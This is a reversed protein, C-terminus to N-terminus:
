RRVRRRLAAILTTVEPSRFAWAAVLYVAMSVGVAGLIVAARPWGRGLGPLVTLRCLGWAVAGMVLAALLARLASTGVRGLGLPGLRRRLMTVLLTFNVITSLSVALALGTHRLPWMLSLGAALYVVLAVAAARVPARSDKLAYFVPVVQRIGAGAWLSVTFGVLTEYTARTMAADFRGRQFLLAIIPEGIVILAVSAPIVVFMTLRLSDTFLAKLKPLEQNAVHLSLTPLSASAIAVAFIGMPMEILRQSYYLYTVTGEDLFSALLRSLIVNVQYLALGFLAPGMLALTRSVDPHRPEVRVRPAYGQRVLFPIQLLLQAVGGVLVGIALGWIPHIGLGHLPRWLGVTSLIMCLNLLVPSAAPSAFHGTVNLVGMALAMLAVCLLYPFMVRTLDVALAYKDPDATFGWAFARVLLPAALMGALCVGLTVLFLTTWAADLFRRSAEHGQHQRVDTFIPVFSVTLTGEALFSRFVNPITFAVFFVDTVAKPFLAAVVMDRILGLIRSLMTLAGM